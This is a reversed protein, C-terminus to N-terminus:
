LNVVALGVVRVGTFWCGTELFRGVGVGGFERGVLLVNHKDGFGVIVWLQKCLGLSSLEKM